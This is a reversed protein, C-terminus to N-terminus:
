RVPDPDLLEAKADLALSSEKPKLVVLTQGSYIGAVRDYYKDAIPHYHGRQLPLVTCLTEALGPLASTPARHLQRGEAHASVCTLSAITCLGATHRSCAGACQRLSVVLLDM